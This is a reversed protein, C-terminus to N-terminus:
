PQGAVLRDPRAILGQAVPRCKGALDVDLVSGTVEVDAEEEIPGDGAVGTEPLCEEIQSAQHLRELGTDDFIDLRSHDGTELRVPSPNSDIM